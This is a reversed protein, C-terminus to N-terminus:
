KKTINNTMPTVGEATSGYSYKLADGAAVTFKSSKTTNVSTNTNADVVWIYYDDGPVVDKFTAVTKTAVFDVDIDPTTSSGDKDIKKATTQVGTVEGVKTTGKYLQVTVGSVDVDWRLRSDNTVDITGTTPAPEETEEEPTEGCSLASFGIVVMLTIIGLIKFM